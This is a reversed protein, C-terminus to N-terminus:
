RRPRVPASRRGGAPRAHVAVGARLCHRGGSRRDISRIRWSSSEVVTALPTLFILQGTANAASLMGMVLGRRTEFWRTAVVAALVMATVGTSSGVVVGWLVFFQWEASMQTSSAVAGAMLALAGLVVRRLGWRDMVSAAFPGILGFLAINVAISASILARTWGFEAELPVMFLGPAARVGSTILMVVFTVLAIVWAYHVRSSSAHDSPAEGSM